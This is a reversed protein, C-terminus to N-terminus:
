DGLGLDLCFTKQMLETEEHEHQELHSLISLTWRRLRSDEPSKAESYVMTALLLARLDALMRDHDRSLAEFAAAAQPNACGIEELVGISEELRFHRFAKDHLRLLHEALDAAWTHAGPAGIEPRPAELFTRLSVVMKRLERHEVVITHIGTDVEQM